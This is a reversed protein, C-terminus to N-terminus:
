RLHPVWGALCRRCLLLRRMALAAARSVCALSAGGASTGGKVAADWHADAEAPCSSSGKALVLVCLMKIDWPRRRVPVAALAPLPSKAGPRRPLQRRRRQGSFQRGGSPCSGDLPVTVLHMLSTTGPRQPAATGSVSMRRQNVNELRLAGPLGVLAGGGLGSSTARLWPFGLSTFGDCTTM